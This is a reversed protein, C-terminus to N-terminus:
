SFGFPQHKLWYTKRRGTAPILIRTEAGNKLNSNQINGVFDFM